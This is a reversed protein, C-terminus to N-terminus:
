DVKFDNIDIESRSGENDITLDIDTKNKSHVDLFSCKMIQNESYSFTVDIQQGAPRGEPLELVGEWINKVFDPDSEEVNSETVDCNVGTQNDHATFYEKMVSCPLKEGKKIVTDNITIRKDTESDKVEVSTGFFKSSVDSINVQSVAKRQLPNLTSPDAKYAVFLAAGLAVAEDPNGFTKPEKKFIKKVSKQICPMRTSGGALIVQIIDDSSLDKDDLCNECTIEAQVILTSIAAEFEERTVEITTRTSTIRVTAKERTSLTKKTDEAQNQTYDEAILEKGTQKKYKKQVIEILIDDFDRGGLKHVGDTNIVQIDSGEVRIISIDFTGGGLDYVAYIGSLPDGSTFAYYIAAATPENIINKIKLGSSKAASLTAERAETAFNAPITVVAQTIKGISAEADDKIKSLVFSSLATPNYKKGFAEYVKDTGMERKFRGFVNQSLGYFKMAEKGVIVDTKSEFLVISPMINDGDKNAIMVPRGTEDLQAIASYTTGLDIGVLNSM